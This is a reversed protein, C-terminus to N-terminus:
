AFSADDFSDFSVVDGSNLPDLEISSDVGDVLHPIELAERDVPLVVFVVPSAICQAPDCIWLEQGVRRYESM